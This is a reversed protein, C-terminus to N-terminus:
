VIEGPSVVFIVAEKVGDIFIWLTESLTVRLSRCNTCIDGVLKADRTFPVGTLTFIVICAGAVAIGMFTLPATQTFILSAGELRHPSSLSSSARLTSKGKGSNTLM